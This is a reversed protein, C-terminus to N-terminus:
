PGKSQQWEAVLREIWDATGVALSSVVVMLLLLTIASLISWRRGPTTAPASATLDCDAAPGKKAGSFVSKVRPLFMVFLLFFPMVKGAFFDPWWTPDFAAYRWLWVSVIVGLVSLFAYWAIALWRASPRALWLGLALLPNVVVLVSEEILNVFSEPVGMVRMTLLEQVLRMAAHLAIGLHIFTVIRVLRRGDFDIDALKRERRGIWRGKLLVFTGTALLLAPLAFLNWWTVLTLFDWASTGDGDPM